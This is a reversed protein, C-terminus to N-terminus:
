PRRPPEEAALRRGVRYVESLYTLACWFAIALFGLDFGSFGSWMDMTAPDVFFMVATIAILILRGETPGMGGHAIDYVGTVNARLHVMVAVLLYGCYAALACDFRVWPSLGIGATILFVTLLDSAQDIFMGFRPREIGRRRAITGDLSDGFWHVVYGLVALALWLRGSGSLAYGICTLAGGSIGILTLGNPTLGAPLRAALWDLARREIRATFGSMQRVSPQRPGAENM